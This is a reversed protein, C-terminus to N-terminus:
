ADLPMLSTMDGEGEALHGHVLRTEFGKQELDHSLTIAQIAPGGINLRTIIRAVRIVDHPRSAQHRGCGM